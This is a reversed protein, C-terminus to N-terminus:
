QLGREILDILIHPDGEHFHLTRKTLPYKGPANPRLHNELEWLLDACQPISAIFHNEHIICPEIRKPTPLEGVGQIFVRGMKDTTRGYGRVDRQSVTFHAPCDSGIGGTRQARGPREPHPTRWVEIEM